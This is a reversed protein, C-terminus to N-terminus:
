SAPKLRVDAVSRRSARELFVGKDTDILRGGVFVDDRNFSKIERPDAHVDRALCMVMYSPSGSRILEVHELRESYGLNGPNAKFFDPFTVQTFWNGDIKQQEDQWVRLLVSGDSPRVSGWSWRSNALPAGLYKFFDTLTV